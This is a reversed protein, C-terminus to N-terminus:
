KISSMKIFLQTSFPGGGPHTYKYREPPSAGQFILVGGM